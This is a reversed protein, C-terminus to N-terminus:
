KIVELLHDGSAWIQERHVRDIVICGESAQGPHEKSDGHIGFSSRGFMENEPMPVLWLVFPGHRETNVPGLIEYIGRPLPGMGKVSQAFPNNKCKERGAYGICVQQGTKDRLIGTSQQYTWM